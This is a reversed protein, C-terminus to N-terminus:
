DKEKERKERTCASVSFSLEPYTELMQKVLSTKGSGSSATIIVIKNM